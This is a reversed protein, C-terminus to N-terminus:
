ISTKGRLSTSHLQLQLQLKIQTRLSSEVSAGNSRNEFSGLVTTKLMYLSTRNSPDGFGFFKAPSSARFAPDFIAPPPTFDQLRTDVTWNWGRWRDSGDVAREVVVAFGGGGGGSDTDTDFSELNTMEIQISDSYEMEEEITMSNPYESSSGGEEEEEEEEEEEAARDSILNRVMVWGDSEWIAGSNSELKGIRQRCRTQLEWALSSEEEEEEEDFEDDKESFESNVWDLVCRPSSHTILNLPASSSIFPHNLLQDCSLREARNRRLCKDVFDRGLESLQTPIEPLEDSYGIRCLTHGGRDEWAPKGTVMEIVTCGLSWVDSEPGQYERRLVEPAMWLPSGSLPSVSAGDFEAASGFDALKAVGPIPGALVNKGKIDCHVIGKSHVYKLAAVICWTSSRVTNEDVDNGSHKALDAVTGGPLYELHLNRFSTTGNNELTTDDGLYEVLWPSSLSRLIRIENELAELQTDFDSRRDVSKVAFVQGNSKDVAMNVTGYSGRGICNGRVWNSQRNVKAM